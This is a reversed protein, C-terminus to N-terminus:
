SSVNAMEALEPDNLMSKAEELNNKATTLEDYKLVISELDKQEKSLDKLLNYNGLVEPDTLRESVENYKAKIAELRDHM